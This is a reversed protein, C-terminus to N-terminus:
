IPIEYQDLKDEVYYYEFKLQKNFSNKNLDNTRLPPAITNKSVSGDGKKKTILRCALSIAKDIYKYATTKSIKNLGESCKSIQYATIDEIAINLKKHMHVVIDVVKNITNDSRSKHAKSAAAARIASLREGTAVEKDEPPTAHCLAVSASTDIGISNLINNLNFASYYYPTTRATSTYSKIQEITLGIKDKLDLVAELALEACGYAIHFSNFLHFCFLDRTGQKASSRNLKNRILKVADIHAQVRSPRLPTVIANSKSPTRPKPKLRTVTAKKKPERKQNVVNAHSEVAVPKICKPVFTKWQSFPANNWMDEKFSKTLIRKEFWEFVDHKINKAVVATNFEKAESLVFARCQVKENNIIRYSGPMRMPQSIITTPTKDIKWKSLRKTKKQEKNDWIARFRELTEYLMHQTKRMDDILASGGSRTDNPHRYLRNDEAVIWYLHWGGSGSSVVVSPYPLPSDEISSLVQELVETAREPSKKHKVDIEMHMVRWARTTNNKRWDQIENVSFYIEMHDHKHMYEAVTTLKKKTHLNPNGILGPDVLKGDQEHEFSKHNLQRHYLESGIGLLDCFENTDIETYLAPVWSHFELSTRKVQNMSKETVSLCRTSDGLSTNLYM